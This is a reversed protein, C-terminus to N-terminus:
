AAEGPTRQPLSPLDCFDNPTVQGETTVFIDRKDDPSPDRAGLAWRQVTAAPKHSPLRRGFAAFSEKRDRLYDLLRM